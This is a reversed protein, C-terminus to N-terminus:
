RPERMSGSNLSQYIRRALEFEDYIACDMIMEGAEQLVFPQVGAHRRHHSMAINWQCCGYVGQAWWIGDSRFRIFPACIALPEQRKPHYILSGTIPYLDDPGPDKSKIISRLRELHVGLSIEGWHAISAAGSKFLTLLHFLKFTAYPVKVCVETGSPYVPLDFNDYWLEKFPKEFENGFYQECESCFLQELPLDQVTAAGRRGKGTVVVMQGRDNKVETTLFKSYIHSRQLEGIQKCFQCEGLRQRVAM